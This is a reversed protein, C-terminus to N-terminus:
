GLYSVRKAIIKWSGNVLNLAFTQGQGAGIPNSSWDVEIFAIGDIIAPRSFRYVIACFPENGTVLKIGEPVDNPSLTIKSFETPKAVLAAVTATELATRQDPTPSADPGTEWSKAIDRRMADDLHANEFVAWPSSRVTSALCTEPLRLIQLDEIVARVIQIEDRQAPPSLEREKCGSLVCIAVVLYARWQSM